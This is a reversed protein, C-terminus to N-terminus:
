NSKAYIEGDYVNQMFVCVSLMHCMSFGSASFENHKTKKQRDRALAKVVAITTTMMMTITATTANVRLAKLIKPFCHFYERFTTCLFLKLKLEASFNVLILHIVHILHLAFADQQSSLRTHITCVLICTYVSYLTRINNTNLCPLSDLALFVYIFLIVFM